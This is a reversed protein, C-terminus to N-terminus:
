VGEPLVPRTAIALQQITRGLLGTVKGTSDVLELNALKMTETLRAQFQGTSHGLVEAVDNMFKEVELQAVNLAETSQKIHSLVESTMSANTSANKVLDGLQTLMTALQDCKARYDNVISQMTQSATGVSGAAAALRDTLGSAQQLSGTLATGAKGFESSAVYLTEAGSNMRTVADSTVTRMSDVSSRMADVASRTGAVLGRVEAALTEVATRIGAAAAQAEAALQNQRELHAADATAAQQRMESMVSNVTDGVNSVAQELHTNSKAQTAAVSDSLGTVLKEVNNSVNAITDQLKTNTEAQAAAVSGSLGTVLREVANSVSALTDQLKTNTEAQSTAVTQSLSAVLSEVAQTVGTLAGQLKENTTDQSQAVSQSLTSVLTEVTTSVRTLVEQLRDNTATQSSTVSAKMEEVIQAMNRAMVEQRAEMGTIAEKLKDAMADTARTGATELSASMQEMRGVATQLAAITEKQMTNIGAIQDGFLDKLSQNLGQVVETLLTHVAGTREGGIKEIAREMSKLPEDLAAKIGESVRVGIRQGLEEASQNQAAIQKDIIRQQAQIQSETLTELIGKLDTVLSDKLTKSNAVSEKSSHLLDQLMQEGAGATYRADLEFVLEETKQYLKALLAKEFLTILMAMSIALASVLFAESVSHLLGGLSQRVLQANDSITFLALGHLIGFFTGIIGVGTLIGPLHKFFEAGVYSDVVVQTSFFQEAPVTSRKKDLVYGGTVSDFKQQEFLTEDFEGWLHKLDQYKEFLPAPDGGDKLGKLGAIITNLASWRSFARPIFRAVFYGVLLLLALACLKAILPAQVITEIM